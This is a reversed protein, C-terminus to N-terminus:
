ACRISAMFRWHTSSLRCGVSYKRIFVIWSYSITTTRWPRMVTPWGKLPLVALRM